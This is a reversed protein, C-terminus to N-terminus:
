HGRRGFQLWSDRIEREYRLWRQPAAHPTPRKSVGLHYTPWLFRYDLVDLIQARHCKWWLTEGCCLAQVEGARYARRVISDLATQFEPLTTYWAFDWLGRVYWGAREPDQPLREAVRQKPFHGQLYPQLDLGREDAWDILHSHRETWGGLDREWRYDIGFEALGDIMAQQNWQPHVSTPHSRVDVLTDVRAARLIEVAEELSRKGHGLTYIPARM